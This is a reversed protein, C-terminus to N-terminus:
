AASSFPMMMLNELRHDAPRLHAGPFLDILRRLREESHFRLGKTWDIADRECTRVGIFVYGGDELCAAIERIGAMDGDPHYPENRTGM